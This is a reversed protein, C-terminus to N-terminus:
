ADNETGALLATRIRAWGEDPLDLLVLHPLSARATKALRDDGCNQTVGLLDRRGYSHQPYHSYLPDYLMDVVTCALQHDGYEYEDGVAILRMQELLPPDSGIWEVILTEHPTLGDPLPLALPPIDTM